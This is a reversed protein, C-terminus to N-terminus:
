NSRRQQGGKQREYEDSCASDCFLRAPLPNGLDDESPLDLECMPNHCRGRPTLERPGSARARLIARHAEEIEMHAAALDCVDAM